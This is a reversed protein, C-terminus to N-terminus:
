RGIAGFPGGTVSIARRLRRSAQFHEIVPEVRGRVAPHDYIATYEIPLLFQRAGRCKAKLVEDLARQHRIAPRGTAERHWETVVVRGIESNAIWLTGSLLEKGPDLRSQSFRHFAIDYDGSASLEDFLVPRKRIIADADIFVIDEGAHALMAELICQSKYNLNSRWNNRSPFAYEVLPISLAQASARLKRVEQEYGTGSTYFTIAIWGM